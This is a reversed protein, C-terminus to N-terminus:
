TYQKFNQESQPLKNMKSEKQKGRAVQQKESSKKEDTSTSICCTRKMQGEIILHNTKM